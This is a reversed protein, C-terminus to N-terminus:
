GESTPETWTLTVCPEDGITWSDHGAPVYFVDGPRFELTAGDNLAVGWRGSITLGVHHVECWEGGVVPKTDTSWRWGPAVEERGVVFGGVEVIEEVLGPLEVLEDPTDLNKASLDM